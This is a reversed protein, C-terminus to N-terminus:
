RGSGRGCEMGPLVKNAINKFTRHFKAVLFEPESSDLHLIDWGM